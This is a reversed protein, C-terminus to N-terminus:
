GQVQRKLYVINPQTGLEELLREGRGARWMRSVQSEPDNRDGFVIASAPCSQACAPKLEGDKMDRAEAKVLQETAKIRQVCFTCKEMVGVERV